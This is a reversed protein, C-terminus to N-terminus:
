INRHSELTLIILACFVYGMKINSSFGRIEYGKYQETMIWAGELYERGKLAKAFTM